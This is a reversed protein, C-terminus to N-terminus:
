GAVGIPEDAACREVVAAFRQAARGDCWRDWRSADLAAVRDLLAPWGVDPFTPVVEVPWNGRALAAATVVQEDFPRDAPVVVAPRRLAAVDALASEGAHTVVVDATRLVPTPDDVWAGAGGLVTWRWGPALRALSDPDARTMPDGGRGELVVVHHAQGEPSGPRGVPMRSVAGVRAVRRVVDDPLGPHLSGAERPAFSVLAGASRFCTLHAPDTRRGPLVVAVVPVGHLRVLLAAEVSVDVVVVRPGTRAVWGSLAAARARVGPDHRPAWHLQGGATVDRPVPDDDDPPLQVWDGTWGPPRALSSLGTVDDDLTAALAEARHLHGRGQHHVYYGIM